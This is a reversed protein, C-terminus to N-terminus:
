LKETGHFYLHLGYWGVLNGDQLAVSQVTRPELDPLPLLNKGKFFPCIDRSIFPRLTVKARRTGFNLILPAIGKSRRRIKMTHLPYSWTKWVRSVRFPHIWIIVGQRVSLTQEFPLAESQWEPVNKEPIPRFLSCLRSDCLKNSRWDM